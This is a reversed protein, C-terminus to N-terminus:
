SRNKGDNGFVVGFNVGNCKMRARKIRSFEVVIGVVLFQKRDKFSEANPSVIKFTGRIGNVNDGVVLVKGVERGGFNKSTSL